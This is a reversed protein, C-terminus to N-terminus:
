KLAEAHATAQDMFMAEGANAKAQPADGGGSTNLVVTKPPQANSKVIGVNKETWARVYESHSKYFEGESKKIRSPGQETEIYPIVEGNNDIDGFEIGNQMLDRAMLDVLLDQNAIQPRDGGTPFAEALARGVVGKYEVQKIQGKLKENERKIPMYQAEYQDKIMEEAEKRADEQAKQLQAPTIADKVGKGDKFQAIAEEMKTAQSEKLLTFLEDAKKGSLESKAIGTERGVFSELTGGLSGLAAAHGKDYFPKTFDNDQSFFAKDEERNRDRVAKLAKIRADAAIQPDSLVIKEEDTLKFVESILEINEKEM